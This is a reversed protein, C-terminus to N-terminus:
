LTVEPGLFLWGGGEDFIRADACSEHVAEAPYTIECALCIPSM